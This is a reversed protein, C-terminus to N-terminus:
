KGGYANELSVVVQKMNTQAVRLWRAKKLEKKAEAFGLEEDLWDQLFTFAKGSGALERIRVGEQERLKNKANELREIANM